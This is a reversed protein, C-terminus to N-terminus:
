GRRVRSALIKELVFAARKQVSTRPIDVSVYGSDRYARAVIDHLRVAESFDQRREADTTYIEPWPPAVFVLRNYRCRDAAERIRDPVSLGVLSAYSLADVIGRDFITPLGANASLFNDLDQEIILEAFRRCELWPLARGGSKVQAQIIARAVEDVCRVGISRLENILATKGAGPGGTIVFFCDRKITM